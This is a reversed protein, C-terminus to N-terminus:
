QAFLLVLGEGLEASTLAEGRWAVVRRRHLANEIEPGFFFLVLLKM